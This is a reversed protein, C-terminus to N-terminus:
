GVARRRGPAHDGRAHTAHRAHAPDNGLGRGVRGHGFLEALQARPLCRVRFARVDQGVERQREVAPGRDAPAGAVDARAAVRRHKDPQSGAHVRHHDAGPGHAGLAVSPGYAVRGLTLTALSLSQCGVRQQDHDAAAHVQGPVGVDEAVAGLLDQDEGCGVGIRRLRLRRHPHLPVLALDVQHRRHAVQSQLPPDPPEEALAPGVQVGVELLGAQDVLHEHRERRLQRPSGARSQELAEGLRLASELQCPEKM